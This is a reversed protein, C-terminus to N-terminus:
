KSISASKLCCKARSNGLSAEMSTISSHSYEQIHPSEFDVDVYSYSIKPTTVMTTLLSSSAHFVHDSISSHGWERFGVHFCLLRNALSVHVFILLMMIVGDHCVLAKFGFGYEPHGQIWSSKPLSRRPNVRPHLLMSVQHCIWGLKRGCSSCSRSRGQHFVLLSNLPVSVCRYPSVEPHNDLIHQWGKRLDIFPSGGMDGTIADSFDRSVATDAFSGMGFILLFAGQGFSTSGTPNIAVVFYGQHAFINPNWRTSWQDHWASHPGLFVCESNKRIHVPFNRVAMFSCYRHGNKSTM